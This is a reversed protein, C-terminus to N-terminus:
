SAATRRSACATAPRCWHARRRWPRDVAIATAPVGQQVLVNKVANARRLSLAMNYDRPGSTDAHGITTIRTQGTARYNDAAQRITNMAVTSVDSRDWDFFVMFSATQAPPPTPPAQVAQTESCAAALLAIGILGLWTKLM